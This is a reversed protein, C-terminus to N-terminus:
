MRHRGIKTVVTTIVDRIKLSHYHGATFSTRNVITETESDFIAYDSGNKAIYYEHAADPHSHLYEGDITFYILGGKCIKKPNKVQSLAHAHGRIGGSGSEVVFALSDTKFVFVEPRDWLLINPRISLNGVTLEDFLYSFPNPILDFPVFM